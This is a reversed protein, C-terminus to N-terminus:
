REATLNIGDSAFSETMEKGVIIHDVVSVKILDLANVLATTIRRDAMSPTTDGSPHNHYFIVKSADNYLAAKVVERPFVNATDVTGRFMEEDAVLRDTKDLFLVGFVEHERTSLKLKLYNNIDPTEDEHLLPGRKELRGYLLSIAEGILKDGKSTSQRMSRPYQDVATGVAASLSKAGTDKSLRELASYEEATLEITIEKTM